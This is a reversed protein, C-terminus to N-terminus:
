NNYSESDGLNPDEAGGRETEPEKKKEKSRKNSM